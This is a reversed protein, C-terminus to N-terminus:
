FNKQYFIKSYRMLYLLLVLIKKQIRSKFFSIGNKYIIKKDLNNKRKKHLKFIEKAREDMNQTFDNKKILYKAHSFYASDYCYTNLKFKQSYRLLPRYNYIRGNFILIKKYLNKKIIKKFNELSNISQKFIEEILKKKKIISINETNYQTVLTSLVSTGIDIKEYKLNMLEKKTKLKKISDALNINLDSKQNEISTIIQSKHFKEIFNIGDKLRKKCYSCKIRSMNENAVCFKKKGDCTIITVQNKKELERKIIEIEVEFIPWIPPSIKILTKGM